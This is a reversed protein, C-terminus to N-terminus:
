QAKIYEVTDKESTGNSPFRGSFSFFDILDDFLRTPQNPLWLQAQRGQVGFLGRLEGARDKIIVGM